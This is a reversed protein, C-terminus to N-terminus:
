VKLKFINLTLSQVELGIKWACFGLFPKVVRPTPRFVPKEMNIVLFAYFHM